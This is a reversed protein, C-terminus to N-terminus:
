CPPDSGAPPGALPYEILSIGLSPIDQLRRWGATVRAEEAAVYDPDLL